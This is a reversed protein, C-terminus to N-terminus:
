GRARLATVRANRDAKLADLYDAWAQMMKRREAVREARNCAARVSDRESHALRLEILDPHFGMENLHFSAVTRFGHTTM